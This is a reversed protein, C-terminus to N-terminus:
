RKGPCRVVRKQAPVFGREGHVTEFAGRVEVANIITLPRMTVEWANHNGQVAILTRRKHVQHNTHTIVRCRAHHKHPKNAVGRRAINPPPPRLHALHPATGPGRHDSPTNRPKLAFRENHPVHNTLVRVADISTTVPTNLEVRTVRKVSSAHMRIWDNIPVLPDEAGAALANDSLVS